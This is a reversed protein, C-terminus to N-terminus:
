FFIRQIGKDYEVVGRGTDGNIRGNVGELDFQYLYLHTVYNTYAVDYKVFIDYVENIDDEM